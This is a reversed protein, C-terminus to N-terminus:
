QAFTQHLVPYKCLKLVDRWLDNIKLSLITFKYHLFKANMLNVLHDFNNDGIISCILM